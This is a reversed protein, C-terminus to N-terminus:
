KVSGNIPIINRDRNLYANLIKGEDFGGNSIAGVLKAIDEAPVNSFMTEVQNELATLTNYLDGIQKNVVEINASSLHRLKEDISNAIESLQIRNIHEMVTEAIDTEYILKYREEANEPLELGAYMELICSKIAFDKVEPLYTGDMDEFCMNVVNNVFTLMEKLTLSYKISIEFEHWAINNRLEKELHEMVKNLNFRVLQNM